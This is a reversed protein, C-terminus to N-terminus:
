AALFSYGVNRVTEIQDGPLKGRLRGIYVDVVNSGPDFTYGWVACLLEQRTCVQGARKMLHRLLQFEREPLTLQHGHVEVRRRQSDLRVRGAEIWQPEMADRLRAHVRALLEAVAFPKALYDVAGLELVRVRTAVGSVASLVLVRQSPKAAMLRELVMAGPLEPLMLDLVVLDYDGGTARDLGAPGTAATTVTHGDGRLARCVFRSIREEDEVVLLQAM